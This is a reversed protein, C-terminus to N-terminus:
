LCGGCCGALKKIKLLSPTEGHQDPQDRVGSKLHDVRRPRGFHPRARHSVGTIGASQSALTPLDGSILFKLGAQGVYCLGTGVLFICFNPALSLLEEWIPSSSSARCTLQMLWQAQGQYPKKLEENQEPTAHLPPDPQTQIYIAMQSVAYGDAQPMLGGETIRASQSALAPPDGLTMLKLGTQGIHLFGMEVLFVFILSAYHRVSLGLEEPPQSLLIAKRDLIDLPTSAQLLCIIFTQAGLKGEPHSCNKESCRCDQCKPLSLRSSQKLGSTRSWGPRHLSVGTEVFMKFILWAHYYM